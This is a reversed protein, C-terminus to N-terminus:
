LLPLRIERQKEVWLPLSLYVAHPRTHSSNERLDLSFNVEGLLELEYGPENGLVAHFIPFIVYLVSYRRFSEQNSLELSPSGPVNAM